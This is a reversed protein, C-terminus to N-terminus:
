PRQLMPFFFPVLSFSCRSMSRGGALPRSLRSRRTWSSTKRCGCSTARSPWRRLSSFSCVRLACQCEVVRACHVPCMPLAVCVVRVVYCVYLSACVKEAEAQGTVVPGFFPVIVNNRRFLATTYLGYGRGDGTEGETCWKWAGDTLSVIVCSGPHFFFYVSAM